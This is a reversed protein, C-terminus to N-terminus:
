QGVVVGQQRRDVVGVVGGGVRRPLFADVKVDALVLAERAFHLFQGLGDRQQPLDVRGLITLRKLHGFDNVLLDNELM